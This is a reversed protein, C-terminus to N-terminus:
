RVSSGSKTPGTNTASMSRVYRIVRKELRLPMARIGNSRASSLCSMSPIARNNRSIRLPGASAVRSVGSYKTEALGRCSRGTISRLISSSPMPKSPVVKM